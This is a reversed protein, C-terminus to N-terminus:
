ESEDPPWEYGPPFLYEDTLAPVSIRVLDKRGDFRYFPVFYISGILQGNKEAYATMYTLTVTHLEVTEVDLISPGPDGLGEFIREYAGSESIIPYDGIFALDPWFMSVHDVIGQDDIGVAIEPAYLRVPVPGVDKLREDCYQVQTGSNDSALRVDCAEATAPLLGHESLFSLATEEAQKANLEVINSDGRETPQRSFTVDGRLLVELRGHEDQITFGPDFLGAVAETTPAGEMFEPPQKQVPEGEIGLKRAIDRADGEDVLPFVARYVPAYASERSLEVSIEVEEETLLPPWSFSFQRAPPLHPLALRSAEEGRDVDLLFLATSLMAFVALWAVLLRYM